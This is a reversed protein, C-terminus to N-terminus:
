PTVRVSIPPPTRIIDRVQFLMARYDGPPLPAPQGGTCPPPPCSLYRASVRVVYSSEGVPITFSQYCAPWVVNPRIRDNGLAVIFLSLCGTTHLARGTDNEVIVHGRM